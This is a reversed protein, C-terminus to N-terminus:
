LVHTLILLLAGNTKIYPPQDGDGRRSSEFKQCNPMNVSYSLLLSFGRILFLLSRIVLLFHRSMKVQWADSICNHGIKAQIKM